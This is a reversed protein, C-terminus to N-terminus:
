EFHCLHHWTRKVQAVAKILIEKGARSLLKEKWGQMRKWVRDKLYNFTKEKSKWMYAPLGLYKENRAEVSIDLAVMVHQKHVWKAYRSFMVSSKEKNITQGSCDEYFSLINQLHNASWDNAKLLLLSDDVFFYITLARHRQVCKWGRWIVEKKPPMFCAHYHKLVCYFCILPFLTDKDCGGKLYLWM